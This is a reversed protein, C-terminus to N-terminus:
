ASMALHDATQGSESCLPCELLRTKLLRTAVSGFRVNAPQFRQLAAADATVVHIACDKLGPTGLVGVWGQWPV